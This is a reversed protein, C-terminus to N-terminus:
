RLFFILPLGITIILISIIIFIAPSIFASILGDMFLVFFNKKENYYEFYRFSFRPLLEYNTLTQLERIRVDWIQYFWFPTDYNTMFLIVALACYILFPRHKFSAWEYTLFDIKQSFPKLDIKDEYNSLFIMKEKLIESWSSDWGKPKRFDMSKGNLHIRIIDRSVIDFQFKILFYKLFLRLLKWFFYTTSFVILVYLLFIIIVNLSSIISPDLFQFFYRVSNFFACFILVFLFFRYRKLGANKSPSYIDSIFEVHLVDGKKIINAGQSHVLTVSNGDELTKIVNIIPIRYHKFWM